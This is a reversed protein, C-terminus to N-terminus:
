PWSPPSPPLSPQGVVAYAALVADWGSDYGVRVTAGDPRREWGSHTLEVVTGGNEGPTFRVEIDGAGSDDQGPHWTFSVALPPNWGTVTGWICTTGDRMTEVISGGVEGAFTVHAAAALGVSHTVLPWWDEIQATFLEFARAQDLPVAVTKRLPALSGAIDTTM